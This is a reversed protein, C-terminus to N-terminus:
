AAKKTAIRVLRFGLSAAIERAIAEADRRSAVSAVLAKASKEVDEEFEKAKEAAIAAAIELMAAKAIIAKEAAAKEAAAKEAAEAKAMISALATAHHPNSHGIYDTDGVGQWILGKRLDYLNAVGCPKINAVPAVPAAIAAPSTKKVTIPAPLALLADIGAKTATELSLANIGAGKKVLSLSANIATLSGAPLSTADFQQGHAYRVTAFVLGLVFSQPSMKGGLATLASASNMRIDSPKITTTDTVGERYIAGHLIDNIPVANFAKKTSASLTAPKPQITAIISM